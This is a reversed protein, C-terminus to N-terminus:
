GFKNRLKQSLSPIRTRNEFWDIWTEHMSKPEQTLLIWTPDFHDTVFITRSQGKNMASDNWQSVFPILMDVNDLSILMNSLLSIFWWCISGLCNNNWPGLCSVFPFSYFHCKQPQCRKGQRGMKVIKLDVSQSLLQHHVTVRSDNFPFLTLWM